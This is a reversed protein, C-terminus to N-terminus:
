WVRTDRRIHVEASHHYNVLREIDLRLVEREVSKVAGTDLAAQTVADVCQDVNMLTDPKIAIHYREANGFLLERRSMALEYLIASHWDFDDSIIEISLMFGRKAILEDFIPSNVKIDRRCHPAKRRIQNLYKNDAALRQYHEIDRYKLIRAPNGGVVACAPVDKTVVAGMGVIAGEGIHVGPVIKVNSGIWVNDEIVVKRMVYDTGYPLANGHDYEHSIGRIVCHPAIIVNNGIQIDGRVLTMGVLSTQNGIRIKGELSTGPGIRVEQGLIHGRWKAIQYRWAMGLPSVFGKLNRNLQRLISLIKSRSLM